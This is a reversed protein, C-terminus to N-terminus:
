PVVKSVFANRPILQVCPARSSLNIEYRIAPFQVSLKPLFNRLFLAQMVHRKRRM